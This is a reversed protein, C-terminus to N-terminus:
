ANLLACVGALFTAHKEPVDVVGDIQAQMLLGVIKQQAVKDVVQDGDVDDEDETSPKAFRGRRSVVDAPGPEPERESFYAVVEQSALKQNCKRFLDREASMAQEL